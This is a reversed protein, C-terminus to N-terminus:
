SPRGSYERPYPPYTLVREALSYGEIAGLSAKTVATIGGILGFVFGNRKPFTSFAGAQLPTRLM